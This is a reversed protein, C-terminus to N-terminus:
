EIVKENVEQISQYLQKQLNVVAEAYEPNEVQNTIEKPDTKHDFLVKAYLDGNDNKWETYSYQSTTINDGNKWRTFIADKFQQNPKELVSVLSKGDLQKPKELGALDCLTPFIDVYETLAKTAQNALKGPAKIILPVKLSSSFTTHKCWLTHDGLNWGHDGWLVVITNDAIGAEELAKMLKGIHADTYSVCAYYGHILKKAYKEPLVKDEPVGYYSRLEGNNHYIANPTGEARYYTDPVDINDIDYMDWYKKPATFPLHPKLFGVGLYFPQDSKALKKIYEVAKEATQGDFYANDAVDADDFPMGAGNKTKKAIKLNKKTLYDRWGRQSGSHYDPRWNMESYDDGRDDPFHLLKGLGVSYYGNEKFHGQITKANPAENEIRADYDFFRNRNPRVGTLLSARSAGCVPVNCYANKFITGSAALKDINPSKIMPHNYCGLEPRLDDVSIFLVNPKKKEVIKTDAKKFAFSFLGIVFFGFLLSSLKKNKKLNIM